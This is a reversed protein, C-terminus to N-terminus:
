RSAKSFRAIQERARAELKQIPPSSRRASSAIAELEKEFATIARATDGAALYGDALSDFVNISKPFLTANKEFIAVAGQPQGHKLLTYGLGNLQQESFDYDAPHSARLSDYRALAEAMAGRMIPEILAHAISPKEDPAQPPEVRVGAKMRLRIDRLKSFDELPNGALVLFSAESGGEFSGITRSPAIARLTETTLLRLIRADDFVGLARLREAEDLVSLAPHDTGLALAVGASVLLQLNTRHMADVAPGHESSKHSVLTTVVTVHRRAAEQADTATIPELPLHHIEDVGATVATRFDAATTVHCAVALKARHARAVVAPLLGPDLGYRGYSRPDRARLAHHESTELYVKIFDPKAALVRPWKRELMTADDVAVYADDRWASDGRASEYIQTPHGGTSTLGGNAYWVDVTQPRNVKARAGAVHSAPNNPNKVYLIGATVFRLADRAFEASDGFAHSHADAYPRVVFGGALDITDEVAGIYKARLTGGVSYFARPVFREGDFWSGNVFLLPHAVDGHAHAIAPVFALSLAIGIWSRTRL